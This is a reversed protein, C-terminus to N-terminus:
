CCDFPNELDPPGPTAQPTTLNRDGGWWIIPLVDRLSVIDTLAVEILTIFAFVGAFLFVWSLSGAIELKRYAGLLAFGPLGFYVFMAPLKLMLYYATSLFRLWDPCDKAKKYFQFPGQTLQALPAVRNFTPVRIMDFWERSHAGGHDTNGLPISKIFSHTLRQARFQQAYASSFAITLVVLLLFVIVSFTHANAKGLNFPLTVQDAATSERPLLALLAVTVLGLWIRNTVQAQTSVATAFENLIKQYSQREM